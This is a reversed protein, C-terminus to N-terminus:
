HGHQLQVQSRCFARKTIKQGVSVFNKSHVTKFFPLKKREKPFIAKRQKLFHQFSASPLNMSAAFFQPQNTDITFKYFHHELKIHGLGAINGFKLVIERTKDFRVVSLILFVCISLFKSHFYKAPEPNLGKFKWGWNKDMEWGHLGCSVGLQYCSVEPNGNATVLVVM